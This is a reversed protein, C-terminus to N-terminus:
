STIVGRCSVKGIARERQIWEPNALEPVIETPAKSVAESDIGFSGPSIMEDDMGSDPELM